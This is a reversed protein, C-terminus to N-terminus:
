YLSLFKRGQFRLRHVAKPKPNTQQGQKNATEIAHVCARVSPVFRRRHQQQTGFPGFRHLVLRHESRAVFDRPRKQERANVSASSPSPSARVSSANRSPPTSPDVRKEKKMYREIRIEQARSLIM